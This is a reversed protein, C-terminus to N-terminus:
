GILFFAVLSPFSLHIVLYTFSIEKQLKKKDNGDNSSNNQVKSFTIYQWM